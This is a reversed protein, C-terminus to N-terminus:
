VRIEQRRGLDGGEIDVELGAAIREVAALIVHQGPGKVLRAAVDICKTLPDPLTVALRPGHDPVQFGRMRAEPDLSHDIKTTRRPCRGAGPRMVIRLRLDVADIDARRHQAIGM